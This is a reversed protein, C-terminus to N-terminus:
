RNLQRPSAFEILTELFHGFSQKLDDPDYTRFVANSKAPQKHNNGTLLQPTESRGSREGRGGDAEKQLGYIKATSLFILTCVGRRAVSMNKVLNAFPSYCM